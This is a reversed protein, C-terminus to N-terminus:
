SPGRQLPRKGPGPAPIDARLAPVVWLTTNFIPGPGQGEVLSPKPPFDPNPGWGKRTAAGKGPTPCASHGEKATVATHPGLACASALRSGAPMNRPCRGAEWRGESMSGPFSDVKGVEMRGQVGLQGTSARGTLLEYWCGSFPM